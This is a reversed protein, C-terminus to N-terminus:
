HNATLLNKQTLLTIYDVLIRETEDLMADVPSPKDEADEGDLDRAPDAAKATASASTVSDGPPAERATFNKAATNTKQLPPPL